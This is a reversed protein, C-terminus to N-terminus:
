SGSAVMAEFQKDAPEGNQRSQARDMADTVMDLVDGPLTTSQRDAKQKVEAYADVLIALLINIEVFFFLVM